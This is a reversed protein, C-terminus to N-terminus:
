WRLDERLIAKKNGDIQTPRLELRCIREGKDLKVDEPKSELEQGHDVAHSDERIAIYFVYMGQETREVGQKDLWTGITQGDYPYTYVDAIQGLERGENYSMVPATYTSQKLLIEIQKLLRLANTGM